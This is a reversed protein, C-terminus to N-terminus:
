RGAARPTEVAERRHRDLAAELTRDHSRARGDSVSPESPRKDAIEVVDEQARELRIRRPAVLRGRLEGVIQAAMQLVQRHARPRLREAIARSGEDAPMAAGSGRGGRDERRQGGAHGHREILRPEGVRPEPLDTREGGGEDHVHVVRHAVQRSRGLRALHDHPGAQVVEVLEGSGDAAIWARLRLEGPREAPQAVDLAVDVRGIEAIEGARERLILLRQRKQVVRDPLHRVVDVRPGFVEDHM